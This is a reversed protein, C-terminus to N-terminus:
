KAHPKLLTTKPYCTQETNQLALFNIHNPQEKYYVCPLTTFRLQKSMSYYKLLFQYEYMPSKLLQVNLGRRHVDSLQKLCNLCCTSYFVKLGEYLFVMSASFASIFLFIVKLYGYISRM